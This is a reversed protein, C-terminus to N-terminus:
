VARGVVYEAAGYREGGIAADRQDTCRADVGGRKVGPGGIDEDVRRISPPRTCASSAPGRANAADAPVPSLPRLPHFILRTNSYGTDGSTQWGATQAEM